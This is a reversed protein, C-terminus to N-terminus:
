PADFQIAHNWTGRNQWPMTIAADAGVASFTITDFPRTWASVDDTGQDATTEAVADEFTSQVLEECTETVETSVDECYNIAYQDPATLLNYLYDSFDAFYASGNSHNAGSNKDREIFGYLDHFEDDFTADVLNDYWADFVSVANGEDQLGDGDGDLRHAGGAIWAQIADLADTETGAAPTVLATMEPGLHVGHADQTAAIRVVNIIDTLTIDGAGALEAMQDSLLRARGAAGWNTSDGGDWGRAPQNNWNSIWGQTPNIVQPNHSFSRRGQFDWKGTGWSPLLTNVGKARTPFYGAHFYGIDTADAYVANFNMAFKSVTDRFDEVSDTETVVKMFVPLADAEKMWYFREKVIAVPWGDVTTRSEVPGHFTRQVKVEFSDGGHVNVTETRSKMKKCKNDHEYFASSAKPKEASPEGKHPGKKIRKCLKEVRVDVADSVGTTLSWAFDTSRGLPVLISAGPLAPGRFDFSDAHVDIDMFFQPISYGVQPGGWELSGGTASLEPAVALFNSSPSEIRLGRADKDGGAPSGLLSAADDPIAIAAAKPNGLDQSDFTGDATQITTDAGPDNRRQIDELMLNAMVPGFREELGQLLAANRLEGGAAGGFDRLQLIALYLTDTAKWNQPEIGFNSFEPPKPIEDANVEAIYANVGKTYNRLLQQTKSGADGFKDRNGWRDFIKNVEGLSYGDRRISADYAQYGDGLVEGLTGKAAARLVTMHWLRDEATAYGLAFGVGADSGYIHPIGLGDRYITVDTRDAPQYEREVDSTGFQFDHFYTLLEDQTVNDDTILNKYLDFQDMRHSSQPGFIAGSQGPPIVAYATMGDPVAPPDAVAPQVSFAALATLATLVAAIRRM